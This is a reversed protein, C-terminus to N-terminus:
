KIEILKQVAEPPIIEWNYDCSVPEATFENFYDIILERMDRSSKWIVSANDIGVASIFGGGGTSRYSNVAVTYVSDPHFLGGDSLSLIEVREGVPRSIDIIYDIGQAADVNYHRINKDIFEYAEPSYRKFYRSSYELYKDIQEGTMTITNLFNEYKYITYVDRVKFAGPSIELWPSFNSTFSILAGSAWIQVNNVLDLLPTDQFNASKGSLAIDLSGIIQESYDITMQHYPEILNLIASDPPVNKVSEMSIRIDKVEWRGNEEVLDVEAKGLQRAWSGAQLIYVGNFIFESHRQSPIVQHAHGTFIIDFGPVQEAVLRSANPYPINQQSAIRSDYELNIGSHFLGILLDVKERQRLIPAWKSSTEVMDAFEIGPYLEQNLWLPVGPTCIGLVGIRVGGTETIFYPDFYTGGDATVANAALWPFNSEARCKDYVAKGQEIDHNGVAFADYGIANLVAIMPNPYEPYKYNFLFTLPTGQILDGADLLLTYPNEERCREILTAIKALGRESPEGKFYDYPFINGHVDTTELLVITVRAEEAPSTPERDTITFAALASHLLLLIIITKISNTM